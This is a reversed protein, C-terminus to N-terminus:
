KTNGIKMLDIAIEGSFKPYRQNFIKLAEERQDIIESVYEFGPQIVPVGGLKIKDKIGVIKLTGTYTIVREKVKVLIDINETAITSGVPISITTIKYDGVPLEVFFYGPEVTKIDWPFVNEPTKDGILLQFKNSLDEQDQFLFKVYNKKLVGQFDTKAFIIGKKLSYDDIEDENVNQLVPSIDKTESKIAIKEVKHDAEVLTEEHTVVSDSGPSVDSVTVVTSCGTFFVALVLIPLSLINIKKM